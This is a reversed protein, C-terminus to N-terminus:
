FIIPILAVLLAVYAILMLSLKAGALRLLFVNTKTYDALKAHARGKLYEPTFRLTAFVYHFVDLFLSLLILFLPPHFAAPIKGESFLWIVAIGALGLQRSIDGAKESYFGVASEVTESGDSTDM